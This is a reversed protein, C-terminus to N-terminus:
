KKKDDIKFLYDHIDKIDLIGQRYLQIMEDNILGEKVLFELKANSDMKELTQQINGM